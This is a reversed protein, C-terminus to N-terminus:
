APGPRFWRCAIAAQHAALAEHPPLDYVDNLDGGPPVAALLSELGAWERRRLEQEAELCARALARDEDSGSAFLLRDHRTLLAAPEPYLGTDFDGAADLVGMTVSLRQARLEPADWVSM